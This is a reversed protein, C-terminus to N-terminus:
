SGPQPMASHGCIQPSFSQRSALSFTFACSSCIHCVICRGFAYELLVLTAVADHLPLVTYILPSDGGPLAVIVTVADSLCNVLVDVLMYTVTFRCCAPQSVPSLLKTLLTLLVPLSFCILYLSLFSLFVFGFSRRLRHVAIAALDTEHVVQRALGSFVRKFTDPFSSKTSKWFFSSAARM